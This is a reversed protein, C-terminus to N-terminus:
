RLEEPLEVGSAELTALVRAYARRAKERSIGLWSGIEEFNASPWGDLGEHRIFVLMEQMSIGQLQAWLLDTWGQEIVRPDRPLGEYEPERKAELKKGWTEDIGDLSLIRQAMETSVGAAKAVDAVSPSREGSLQRLEAFAQLVAKRSAFERESLASHEDERVARLVARRISFLAWSSFVGKSPDFSDVAEVLGAMGAALYEERQDPTANRVYTSVTKVVLGRNAEVIKSTVRELSHRTRNLQKLLEPAPHDQHRTALLREDKILQEREGFLRRQLERREDSDSPELSEDDM